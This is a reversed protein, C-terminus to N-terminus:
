HFPEQFRLDFNTIYDKTAQDIHKNQSTTDWLAPYGYGNILIDNEIHLSKVYTDFDDFEPKPLYKNWDTKKNDKVKESPSIPRKIGHDIAAIVTQKYSEIKKTDNLYSNQEVLNHLIYVADNKTFIGKGVFGGMLLAASRLRPHGPTGTIQDIQHKIQRLGAERAINSDKIERYNERKATSTIEAPKDVARPPPQLQHATHNFYAEPDYSYGRLRSIDKCSPDLSINWKNAFIGAIYDFYAKHLNVDPAIPILAWYGTGSVSIGCYAINKIKSIEQKLEKWNEIQKNTDDFDIDIAMFGTHSVLDSMRRHTFIGSPTIAPLKSKLADRSAKDPLQRITDVEQKYKDSSLWDYLNVKRPNGATRYNRFCSVDVNLISEM